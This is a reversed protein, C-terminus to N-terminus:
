HFNILHEFRCVFDQNESFFPLYTQTLEYFNLFLITKSHPGLSVSDCTMADGPNLGKFGSNFGM